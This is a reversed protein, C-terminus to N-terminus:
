FRMAEIFERQFGKNQGLPVHETKKLIGEIRSMISKRNRIFTEAGKLAGNELFEIKDPEIDEPVIGATKANDKNLRRGFNGTIVLRSIEKNTLRRLFYMGALFAAKALQVQRVDNQSIFIKKHDECLVFDQKIKGSKKIYARKLLIAIIDILGSGSIGEPEGGGIVKLELRGDKDEVSEIAGKVARMGCTVHWGEFAPGAATSAVWIKEKSGLIIEGNTGLDVALIPHKSKDIDAALIVAIADSGVFGGVNPLFDFECDENAEIGLTKAKKIAFAKHLPDYPPKALKEPSLFLTFHYLAANGVTGILFIDNKDEKAFSVLNEIVFNISSIANKHLRELGSPRELSFKIRSIVDHGHPLQENLSSFYSLEDKEKLDILKGQITTTGIDLAVGLRKQM